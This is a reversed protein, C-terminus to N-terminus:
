STKFHTKYCWILDTIVEEAEYEALIGDMKGDLYDQYYSALENELQDTMMGYEISWKFLPLFVNLREAYELDCDFDWLWSTTLVPKYTPDAQVRQLYHEKSSIMMDYFMEKTGAYTIDYTM